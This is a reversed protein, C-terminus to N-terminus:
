GGNYRRRLETAIIECKDIAELAGTGVAQLADAFEQERQIQHQRVQDLQALKQEQVQVVEDLGQKQLRQVEDIHKEQSTAYLANLRRVEKKEKVYLVLLVLALLGVSGHELFAQLLPEYM